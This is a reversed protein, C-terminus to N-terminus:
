AFDPPLPKYMFHTIKLNSLELGNGDWFKGHEYYAFRITRNNICVIIDIKNGKPMEKSIDRWGEGLLSHVDNSVLDSRIYEISDDYNKYDLCHIGNTGVFKEVYIREPNETKM